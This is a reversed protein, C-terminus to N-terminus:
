SGLALVPLSWMAMSWADTYLSKVTLSYERDTEDFKKPSSICADSQIHGVDPIYISIIVVKKKPNPIWVMRVEEM